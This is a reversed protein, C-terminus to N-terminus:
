DGFGIKKGRYICFIDINPSNETVLTKTMDFLCPIFVSLSIMFNHALKGKIHECPPITRHSFM